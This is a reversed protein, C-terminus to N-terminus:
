ATPLQSLVTAVSPHIDDLSLKELYVWERRHRKDHLLMKSEDTEDSMLYAEFFLQLSHYFKDETSHYFNQERFAVLKHSSGIHYGTEEQLERVLGESILEMREIGGGPFHWKGSDSQIMLYQAKKNQILAYASVRWEVLRDLPLPVVIGNSDTFNM